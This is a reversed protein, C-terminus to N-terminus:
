CLHELTGARMFVADGVGGASASGDLLDVVASHHFFWTSQGEYVTPDQSGIHYMRQM